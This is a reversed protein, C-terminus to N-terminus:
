AIEIARPRMAERMPLVLTLLGDELNGSIKDADIEEPLRLRLQYNPKDLEEHIARWGEPVSLERRGTVTLVGKEVGVTLGSKKVGPLYVEVRYGHEERRSRYAPSSFVEQTEPPAAPADTAGRKEVNSEIM